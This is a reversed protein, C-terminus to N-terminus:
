LGGVFHLMAEGQLQDPSLLSVRELEIARIKKAEFVSVAEVAVALSFPRTLQLYEDTSVEVLVKSVDGGLCRRIMFRVAQVATGDYEIIDRVSKAKTEDDFDFLIVRISSDSGNEVLISLSGNPVEERTFTKTKMKM